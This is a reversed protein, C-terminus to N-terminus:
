KALTILSNISYNKENNKHEEVIKIPADYLSYPKQRKITEVLNNLKNRVTNTKTFAIDSNEKSICNNWFRNMNVYDSSLETQLSDIVSIFINTYQEANLTKTKNTIIYKYLQHGYSSISYYSKKNYKKKIIFRSIEPKGIFNSLNSKSIGIRDALEQHTLANETYLSEILTSLHKYTKLIKISDEQEIFSDEACQKIDLIARIYILSYFKLFENEDFNFSSIERYIEQKSKELQELEKCRSRLKIFAVVEKLLSETLDTIISEYKKGEQSINLSDVLEVIDTMNEGGKSTYNM